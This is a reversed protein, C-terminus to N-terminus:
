ENNRETQHRSLVRLLTNAERGSLVFVEENGGRAITVRTANNETTVASVRLSGEDRNATYTRLDGARTFYTEVRANRNTDYSRDRSQSVKKKNTRKSM